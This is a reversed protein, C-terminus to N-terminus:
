ADGRTTTAIAPAGIPFSVSFTTGRGPESTAVIRGGHATVIQDCVALGLGTGGGPGKTTFFPNFIQSLHEPAIGHGTDTIEIQVENAKPVSHTTITLSGGGPMAQWANMFINMLVQEVQNADAQIAPLGPELRTDVRIHQRELLRQLLRITEEVSANLDLDTLEFRPRRAYDMLSRLLRRCTEAQTRITHLGETLEDGTAAETELLEATGSIVNLPTGLEHAIGAALQGVAAMKESHQIQRRAQVDATVDRIIVSTGVFHGEPDRMATRSIVVNIETGDRRRRVTRYNLVRGDEHVARTLEPLEDRREEPVLVEVPKGLIEEAKWGYLKEAGRNFITVREEPDLYLIADESEALVSTLFREACLTCVGPQAHLNLLASGDPLSTQRVECPVGTPTTIQGVTKWDIGGPAKTGGLDLDPFLAEVTKGVLSAAGKGFLLEAGPSLTSVTRQPTLHLLFDM